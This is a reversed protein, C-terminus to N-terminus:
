CPQGCGAGRRDPPPQDTISGVAQGGTKDHLSTMPAALVMGEIHLHVVAPRHPNKVIPRGKCFLM